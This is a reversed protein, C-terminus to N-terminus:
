CARLGQRVEELPVALLQSARLPSVEWKGLARWVLSEFRHPKELSSFEENPGLPEPEETRWSRAFTRFVKGIVPQSIVGVQGLRMLMVAAPVGYIQKLNLMERVTMDDQEVGTEGVLHDRPMLFAGAFVNMAREADSNAGAGTCIVRHALEHAVNFRKREVATHRSVAMAEVLRGDKCKAQCALGCISEPLDEEIVKHGHRELLRVM